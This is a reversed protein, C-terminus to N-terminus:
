ARAGHVVVNSIEFALWYLAQSLGSTYGHAQPGPAAARNRASTGALMGQWLADFYQQMSSGM